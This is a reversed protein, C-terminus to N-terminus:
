KYILRKIRQHINNMEQTEHIDYIVRKMNRKQYNIVKIAINKMSFLLINM